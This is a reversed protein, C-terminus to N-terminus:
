KLYKNLEDIYAQKDKEPMFSHKISNINCKILDNYEFGCENLAHDYEDNITIDALIMNDTNLTIVAGADLLKKAPHLQYSPETKCQINSTLCIELATKTDIVKQMVEKNYFCHHGHGIRKAGYDIVTSCNEPKGNDGAHITLPLGKEKPTIFLEAYHEMPVSDEFGALDLGVVHRHDFYQEFLNVTELNERRNDYPEIMCCFIIGIKIQPFDAEAQKKGALVAEIADKQTLGKQTHLQPAFRIECYCLDDAVNKITTYTTEYLAAYDQLIATSIDFRALYEGVDGCDATRILFEKFQEINDAPLSINREAALKWTTEPVMSGDLHFHLDVKPFPYKSM